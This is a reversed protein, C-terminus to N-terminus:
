STEEERKWPLIMGSHEEYWLVGSVGYIMVAALFSSVCEKRGWTPPKRIVAWKEKQWFVLWAVQLKVDIPEEPTHIRMQKVPHYEGIRYGRMRLRYWLKREAKPLGMLFRLTRRRKWRVYWLYGMGGGVCVVFGAFAMWFRKDM